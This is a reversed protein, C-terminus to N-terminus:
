KEFDYDKGFDRADWSDGIHCKVCYLPIGTDSHYMSIISTKCRDCTRKYLSRENIFVLKRIFRCDVCWTPPPVNLKQYFIFDEPEITFDKQCSQCKKTEQKM